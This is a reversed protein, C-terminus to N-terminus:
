LTSAVSVCACPAQDMGTAPDPTLAAMDAEQLQHSGTGMPLRARLGPFAVPGSPLRAALGLPLLRAERALGMPPHAGLGLGLPRALLALGMPPRAVMAAPGLGLVALAEM